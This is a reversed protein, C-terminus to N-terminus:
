ESGDDTAAAIRAAAPGSVQQRDYSSLAAANVRAQFESALPTVSPSEARAAQAPLTLGGIVAAFLTVNVLVSALAARTCLAAICLSM